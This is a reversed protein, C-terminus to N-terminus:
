VSHLHCLRRCWVIKSSLNYLPKNFSIHFLFSITQSNMNGFIVSHCSIQSNDDRWQHIPTMMMMMMMMMMPINQGLAPGKSCAYSGLSCNQRLCTMWRLTLFWPQLKVLFQIPATAERQKRCGVREKDDSCGM